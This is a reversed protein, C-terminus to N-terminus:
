DQWKREVLKRIKEIDSAISMLCIMCVGVVWILLVTM